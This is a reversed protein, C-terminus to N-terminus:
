LQLPQPHWCHLVPRRQHATPRPAPPVSSRKFPLPHEVALPLWRLLPQVCRDVAIALHDPPAKSSAPRWALLEAQMLAKVEGQLM